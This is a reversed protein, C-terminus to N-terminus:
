ISIIKASRVDSHDMIQNIVRPTIPEDAEVIAYALKGKEERFLKMFAINIQNDALCGSIHRVMGPTDLHEVILTHYEGTFDVAVGNLATIKMNGGGTSVGTVYVTGGGTGAITIDVTNPHDVSKEADPIFAYAIGRRNAELFSDRIREDETDYGLIGGLLARDTGHGRYTLAFSGYLRFQVSEIPEGIMGAAARAIRLAGATHSSSPGIMNPGIVEFVSIEKM